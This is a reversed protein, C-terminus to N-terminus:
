LTSIAKYINIVFPSIEFLLGKNVDFNIGMALSTLIGGDNLNISKEMISSASQEISKINSFNKNLESMSINVKISNALSNIENYRINKAVLGLLLEGEETFDSRKYTYKVAKINKDSDFYLKFKSTQLIMDEKKIRM